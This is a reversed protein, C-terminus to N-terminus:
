KPGSLPFGSGRSASSSRSGHYSKWAAGNTRRSSPGVIIVPFVAKAVSFAIQLLHVLIVKGPEQLQDLLVIRLALKGICEGPADEPVLM